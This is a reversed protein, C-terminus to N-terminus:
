AHTTERLSLLAMNSIYCKIQIMAKMNRNLWDELKPNNDLPKLVGLSSPDVVDWIHRGQLILEMRMSWTQYNKSDEDLPKLLYHNGDTSISTFESM